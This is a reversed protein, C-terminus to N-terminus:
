GRANHRWALAALAAAQDPLITDDFLVKPSHNMEATAPDVDAPTANLFMFAGPVKQLVFSFDESGMVPEEAVTARDPGFLEGLTELAFHAAADDNITPPYLPVWEVEARCGHATAISDALQEALMPFRETSETSLTRVSAALSALPPIVNVADGARLQTVTAVVPDFVHFRRTIMVQLAQGFELLAPVPDLAEDPRSAHGGKGIFRVWLDNAGAMVTGPRVSFVGREGTMVHIAYAGTVPHDEGAATLLDEYLMPLAGGTTEEGPQFMFVVNGPLEERVASLVRAAGVLGATHLDHGCAHMNGNESAYELGTEELVPLGDMDGRLLVTPGPRGGRLVAVVSTIERGTSVELPLGELADLVMQQTQPLDNGLEPNRHLTRRLESLEQAHEAALSQFDPQATEPTSTAAM